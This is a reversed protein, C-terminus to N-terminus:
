SRVEAAPTSAPRADPELQRLQASTPEGRARGPERVLDPRFSAPMPVYRNVNDGYKALSACLAERLDAYQPLPELADHLIEIPKATAEWARQRDGNEFRWRADAEERQRAM